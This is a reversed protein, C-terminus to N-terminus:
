GRTRLKRRWSVAARCGLQGGPLGWGAGIGAVPPSRPPGPEGFVYSSLAQRGTCQLLAVWRAALGDRSSRSAPRRSVREGLPMGPARPSRGLDADGRARLPRSRRRLASACPQRMAELPPDVFGARDRGVPVGESRPRLEPRSAFQCPCRLRRLETAVARRVQGLPKKPLHVSLV